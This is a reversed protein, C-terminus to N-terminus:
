ILRVPVSELALCTTDGTSIDGMMKRRSLVLPALLVTEYEGDRRRRRRGKHHSLLYNRPAPFRMSFRISRSRSAVPLFLGETRARDRENGNLSVLRRLGRQTRLKNDTAYAYSKGPVTPPFDKGKSEVHILLKTSEILRNQAQRLVTRVNPFTSVFTENSWNKTSCRM